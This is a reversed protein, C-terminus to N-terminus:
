PTRRTVVVLPVGETTEDALWSQVTALVDDLVADPVGPEADPAAATGSAAAGAFLLVADPRHGTAETHEALAGPTAFAPLTTGSGDPATVPDAPTGLVAWGTAAPVAAPPTVPTWDLRFLWDRAARASPDLTDPAIERVALADITAVPAGTPDTLQVSIADQGAPSVRVRLATAGAAHLCVGSWTFPVVTRGASGPALHAAHLAADLLAPHIGFRGADGRVQEPLVVEAYLDEGRSWTARVGQFVPGFEYGRGALLEYFGEAAVATAGPPPWATFEEPRDVAPAGPETLTGQARLTWLDETAGDPGTTRTHVTVPRRGSADPEGVGIQVQAEGREQLVVPAQLALEEIRGCGLVDGARIVSEVLATGPVIVTGSVAHDALWPHTRLSWRATAVLGDGGALEVSAGLLPHDPSDLGASSVDGGLEAFRPWYHQRQFAYTPLDVHRPRTGAYHTEWDVEAGLAWAEGLSLAFRELGGEDRRLTGVVGAQVGADEITEQVGTAVVPHASVEVFVRFGDALLARTGAEFEVTGRLNRYWYAADLGATDVVQGSVTSYFPVDCSRPAVPALLGALEEEIREVHASHSAYDVAVRRARVGSADCAAVFEDLAEADGSVVVSSPGNVAAVGIRGEWGALLGRVED